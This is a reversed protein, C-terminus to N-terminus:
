PRTRDTEVESALDDADAKEDENMSLSSFGEVGRKILVSLRSFYRAIKQEILWDTESLMQGADDKLSKIQRNGTNTEEGTWCVDSLYNKAKQSLTAAKKHKGFPGDM